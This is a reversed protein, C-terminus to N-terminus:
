LSARTIDRQQIASRLAWTGQQLGACLRLVDCEAEIGLRLPPRGGDCGGGGYHAAEPLLLRRSVCGPSATRVATRFGAAPNAGRQPVAHLRQALPPVGFCPPLVFTFTFSLDQGSSVLGLASFTCPDEVDCHSHFNDCHLHKEGCTM